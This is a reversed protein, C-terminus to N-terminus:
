LLERRKQRRVRNIHREFDGGAILEALVLQEFVPVTCSYFGLKERFVPALHEPLVMYAARLAPSVTRSFTNMYIVNDRDTHSFLTEEPKRSVSFESEFDDEILLRGPAAAAWRLYEHKKSASATVGTPFSRYPTVHLVGAGSRWLAASEVGDRGLPLLEPAAGAARYVQEIKQYSPTEIAYTTDRGLLEIVLRYLYEAGAGIVIRGADARVGRSRALYGAIASRLEPCGQNDAKELLREGQETLVRRMTRALTSLPFTEKGRSVGDRRPLEAARRPPDGAGAFGDSSRFAAFCGSRERSEAYGEECLLALAHEATVLSVGAEEALLRKSPLRAGRPWVGAVIDDRLQRYLQLYAPTRETKDIAYNM